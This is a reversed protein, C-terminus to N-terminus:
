LNFMFKFTEEFFYCSIGDDASKIKILELELNEFTEKVPNFVKEGKRLTVLHQYGIYGILLVQKDEHHLVPGGKRCCTGCRICKSIDPSIKCIM